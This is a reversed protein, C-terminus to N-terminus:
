RTESARTNERHEGIGADATVDFDESLGEMRKVLQAAAKELATM